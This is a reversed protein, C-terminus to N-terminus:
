FKYRQMQLFLEDIKQESTKTTTIQKLIQVKANAFVVAYYKFSESSSNHNAKFNTGKCKCFCGDFISVVNCM